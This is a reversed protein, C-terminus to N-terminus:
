NRKTNKKKVEVEEVEDDYNIYASDDICEAIRGMDKWSMSDLIESAKRKAEEPSNAEVEIKGGKEYSFSILYRKM